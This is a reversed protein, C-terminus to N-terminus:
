TPAIVHLGAQRLFRMITQEDAQDKVVFCCGVEYRYPSSSPMEEVRVVRAQLDMSERDPPSVRVALGSGLPFAKESRFLIGGRSVNISRAEAMGNVPEIQKVLLHDQMAVRMFNRKEAYHMCIQNKGNGKAQYLAQDAKDVLEQFTIADEPYCAIGGSSTVEHTKGQISRTQFHEEIRRRIREGVVFAGYRDTEPLMVAFEEGGYRSAIDINRVMRQIIDAVEVLVMDGHLHGGSDNVSKFDDLDLFLLAKTQQYREAREIEKELVSAFHRRNFLGTLGDTVASKELQEYASFEMLKPNSLRPSLNVFYDMLSVRIGIDRKLNRHMEQRHEVIKRWHSKAEEETFRLHTLLLLFDSYISPLAHETKVRELAEEIARDSINKDQLLPLVTEKLRLLEDM